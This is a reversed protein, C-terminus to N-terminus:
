HIEGKYRLIGLCNDLNRRNLKLGNQNFGNQEIVLVENDSLESIIIAIHGYQNNQTKDWIIVDGYKISDIENLKLQNFYKQQIPMSNHHIFIDKAGEVAGTHPINLVDRCFQRFVDVCQAGYYKDYDIHKNLYKNVFNFLKM